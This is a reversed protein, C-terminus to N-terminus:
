SALLYQTYIWDRNYGQENLLTSAMGRFGHACMEDKSFGMRRLAATITAESMPRDASRVSPFLYKSHATLPKLQELVDLTQRSLPVLHPQRMKMKEAPIRWLKEATDIESWEAHRIEGPRAFTLASFKLALCTLLSTEEYGEIAKILGEAQKPTTLAARSKSIPSSYQRRLQDTWDAVMGPVENELAHRLLASIISRVKKLTAFKGQAQLIDLVTKIDAKTVEAIPKDGFSPLIHLNLKQQTDELHVPSWEPTRMAVWEDAIIRVSIQGAKRLAKKEQKVAAPNLGQAIQKKAVLAKERADALSFEPYPCLTLQQFKGQFKYSLRFVKKGSTAVAVFLGGISGDSVKYPKDKPKLGKIKLDTLKMSSM